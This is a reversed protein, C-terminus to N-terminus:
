AVARTENAVMRFNRQGRDVAMLYAVLKRAVTLTARNAHGKRRELDYLAALDPSYRPAMNAAEILTACACCHGYGMM